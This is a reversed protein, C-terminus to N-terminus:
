VTGFAVGEVPNDPASSAAAPITTESEGGGREPRPIVGSGFPTSPMGDNVVVAVRERVSLSDLYELSSIDNLVGKSVSTSTVPPRGEMVSDNGNPRGDIDTETESNEIGEGVADAKPSATNPLQRVGETKDRLLMAECGDGDNCESGSSGGSGDVGREVIDGGGRTDEDAEGVASGMGGRDRTVRGVVDAESVRADFLRLGREDSDGATSSMRAACSAGASKENEEADDEIEGVTGIAARRPSPLGSEKVIGLLICGGTM